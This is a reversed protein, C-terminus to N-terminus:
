LLSKLARLGLEWGEQTPVFRALLGNADDDLFHPDLHDLTLLKSIDKRFLLIKKGEYNICGHYLIEALTLGGECHSKLVTFRFPDPDPAFIKPANVQVFPKGTSGAKVLASAREIAQEVQEYAPKTITATVREMEGRRTCGPSMCNHPRTVKTDYQYVRETEGRRSCGPSMCNHPRTVSRGGGSVGAGGSTRSSGRGSSGGRFMGIGM